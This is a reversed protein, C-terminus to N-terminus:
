SRRGKSSSLNDKAGNIVAQSAQPGIIKIKVILMQGVVAYRDVLGEVSHILQHRLALDSIEGAGVVAGQLHRVQGSPQERAFMFAVRRNWSAAEVFVFHIHVAIPM